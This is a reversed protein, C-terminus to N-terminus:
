ESGVSDNLESYVTILTNLADKGIVLGTTANTCAGVLSSPEVGLSVLAVALKAAEVGCVLDRLEKASGYFDKAKELGSAMEPLAETQVYACGGAFCFCGLVSMVALFRKSRTV